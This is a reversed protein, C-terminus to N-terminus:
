ALVKQSRHLKTIVPVLSIYRSPPEDDEPSGIIEIREKGKKKKKRARRRFPIAPDV